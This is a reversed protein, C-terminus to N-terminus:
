ITVSPIAKSITKDMRRLNEVVADLALVTGDLDGSEALERAETAKARAWDLHRKSAPYEKALRDLTRDSRIREEHNRLGAVIEENSKVGIAKRLFEGLM